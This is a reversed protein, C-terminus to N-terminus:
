KAISLLVKQESELDSLLQEYRKDILEPTRLTGREVACELQRLRVALGAVPQSVFRGNAAAHDLASLRAGVKTNHDARLAERDARAIEALQRALESTRPKDFDEQGAPWNTEVISCSERAAATPQSAAGSTACASLFLLGSGAIGVAIRVANM